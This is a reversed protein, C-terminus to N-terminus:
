FIILDIHSLQLFQQQTEDARELQLALAANKAEATERARRRLSAAINEVENTYEEMAMDIANELVEPSMLMIFFAVTLVFM